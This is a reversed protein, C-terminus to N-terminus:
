RVLGMTYCLSNKQLPKKRKNINAIAREVEQMDLPVYPPRSRATFAFASKNVKVEETKPTISTIPPLVIRYDMSIKHFSKRYSMIDVTGGFTSLVEKAPAPKIFDGDEKFVHRMMLKLLAEKEWARIGSDNSRRNYACACNFSCFCGIVMFRDHAFSEPIGVPTSDFTHCCWWCAISTSRPWEELAQLRMTRHVQDDPDRPKHHMAPVPEQTALTAVPASSRKSTVVDTERAIVAYDRSVRETDFIGIAQEPRETPDYPMPERLMPDYTLTTKDENIANQLVSDPIPIHLIVNEMEVNFVSTTKKQTCRVKPKRGRKKKEPLPAGGSGGSTDKGRPLSTAPAPAPPDMALSAM